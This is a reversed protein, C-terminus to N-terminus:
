VCHLSDNGSGGASPAGDREREECLSMELRVSELDKHPAHERGRPVRGGKYRCTTVTAVDGRPSRGRRAPASVSIDRVLDLASLFRAPNKVVVQLLSPNIQLENKRCIQCICHINKNGNLFPRTSKNHSMKTELAAVIRWM